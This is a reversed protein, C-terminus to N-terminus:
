KNLSSVAIPDHKDKVGDFFGHIESIAQEFLEILQQENDAFRALIEYLSKNVILRCIAVIVRFSPDLSILFSKNHEQVEQIRALTDAVDPEM